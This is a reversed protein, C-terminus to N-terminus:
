SSSVSIDIGDDEDEDIEDKRRDDKEEGLSAAELKTLLPDMNHENTNIPFSTHTASGHFCEVWLQWKYALPPIDVVPHRPWNRGCSTGAGPWNCRRAKAAM